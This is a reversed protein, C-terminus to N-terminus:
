VREERSSPQAELLYYPGTEGVRAFGLREYLWRARNNQEVHLRVVMGTSSAKDLLARLVKTGIGRGRWETLLSLDILQIAGDSALLYRRGIPEGDPALILEFQADPYSALYHEHQVSFQQDLFSRLMEEPWGLQQLEEERVSGYLKRLFELEGGSSFRVPRFRVALEEDRM